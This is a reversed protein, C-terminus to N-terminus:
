QVMKDPIVRINNHVNKIVDAFEAVNTNAINVDFPSKFGEFLFFTIQPRTCDRKAIANNNNAPPSLGNCVADRASVNGNMNITNAAIAEIKLARAVSFM